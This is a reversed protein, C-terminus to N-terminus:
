PRAGLARRQRMRGHMVREAVAVAGAAAVMIVFPDLPARFRPTESQILVTSAWLLAVLALLFWPTRRLTGLLVGALGVLLYAWLQRAGAVAASSVLAAVFTAAKSTFRM